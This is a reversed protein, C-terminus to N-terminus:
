KTCKCYGGFHAMIAENSTKYGEYRLVRVITRQSIKSAWADELTKRDNEPMNDLMKQYTCRQIIKEQKFRDALTM